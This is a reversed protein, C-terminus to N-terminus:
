GRATSQAPFLVGEVEDLMRQVSFEERARRQAEARRALDEKQGREGLARAVAATLAPLDGRPVVFGAPSGSARADLAERAGSVETSVVACGAAMAELVVNAM